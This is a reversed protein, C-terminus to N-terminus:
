GTCGVAAFVRYRVSKAFPSQIHIAALKVGNCVEFRQSFNQQKPDVGMESVTPLGLFTSIPQQWTLLYSLFLIVNALKSRSHVATLRQTIARALPVLVHAAGFGRTLWVLKQRFTPCFGSRQSLAFYSPKGFKM